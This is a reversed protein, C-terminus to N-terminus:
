NQTVQTERSAYINNILDQLKMYNYLSCLMLTESQKENFFDKYERDFIVGIKLIENKKNYDDFSISGPYSSGEYKKFYITDSKFENNELYFCMLKGTTSYDIWSKSDCNDVIIETLIKPTTIGLFHFESNRRINDIVPKLLKINTKNPCKGIAIHKPHYVSYQDVKKTNESIDHIVPVVMENLSHQEDFWKFNLDFNIQGHIYDFAFIYEFTEHIYNYYKNIFNLYKNKMTEAVKVDRIDKTSFGGSDLIINNVFPRVNKILRLLGIYNDLYNKMSILINPKLGTCSYFLKFIESSSAVLYINM